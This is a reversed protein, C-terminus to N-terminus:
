KGAGMTAQLEALKQKATELNDFAPKCDVIRPPFETAAKVKALACAEMIKTANELNRSVATLEPTWDRIVPVPAQVTPPAADSVPQPKPAELTPVIIIPVATAPLTPPPYYETHPTMAKSIHPWLIVLGVAIMLLYAVTKMKEKM